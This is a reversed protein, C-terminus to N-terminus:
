LTATSGATTPLHPTELDMQMFCFCSYESLASMRPWSQEIVRINGPSAIKLTLMIIWIVGFIDDITGQIM